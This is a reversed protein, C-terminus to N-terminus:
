GFLNKIFRIINSGSDYVTAKIDKRANLRPQVSVPKSSKIKQLAEEPSSALVKFVITSPVTCEVRVDYYKNTSATKVKHIEKEFEKPGSANIKKGELYWARGGSALEIAPGIERHLKGKYYWFRDGNPRVSVEYEIGSEIVKM